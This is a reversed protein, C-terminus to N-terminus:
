AHEDPQEEADLRLSLRRAGGGARAVARVRLPQGEPVRRRCHFDLTDVQGPCRADVRRAWERAGDLELAVSLWAGDAPSPTRVGFRLDIEFGRERGVVPPIDLVAVDGDAADVSWHEPRVAASM